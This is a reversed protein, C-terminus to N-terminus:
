FTDNRHRQQHSLLRDNMSWIKDRLNNVFGDVRLVLKQSCNDVSCVHDDVQVQLVCTGRRRLNRPSNQLTELQNRLHLLRPYDSQGGWPDTGLQFFLLLDFYQSTTLFCSVCTIMM